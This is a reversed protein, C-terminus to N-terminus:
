KVTWRQIGLYNKLLSALENKYSQFTYPFSTLWPNEVLADKLMM